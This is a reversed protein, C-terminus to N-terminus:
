PFCVQLITLSFAVIGIPRHAKLSSRHEPLLENYLQGGLFVSSLALLFGVIQISIHLFFWLPGGKGRVYRPIIAGFPLVAGWGVLGVMGHRVKQLGRGDTGSEGYGTM